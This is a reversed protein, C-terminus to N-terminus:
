NARLARIEELQIFADRCVAFRQQMRPNPFVQAFNQSASLTNLAHIHYLMLARLVAQDIGGIPVPLPSYVHYIKLIM